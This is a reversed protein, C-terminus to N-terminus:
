AAADACARATRLSLDVHSHLFYLRLALGTPGLGRVRGCRKYVHAPSSSGGRRERQPQLSRRRGRAANSRRRLWEGACGAGGGHNTSAASPSASEGDRVHHSLAHPRTEGGARAPDGGQAVTGPRAAAPMMRMGSSRTSTPTFQACHATCGVSHVAAPRGSFHRVAAREGGADRRAPRGRRVEGRSAILPLGGVGGRHGASFLHSPKAWCHPQHPSRHSRALQEEDVGALAAGRGLIHWQSQAHRHVAAATM